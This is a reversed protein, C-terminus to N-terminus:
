NGGSYYMGFLMTLLSVRKGHGNRDSKLGDNIEGKLGNLGVEESIANTADIGQRITHIEDGLAFNVGNIDDNLDDKYNVIETTIDAVAAKITAGEMNLKLSLSMEFATFYVQLRPQSLRGAPVKVAM